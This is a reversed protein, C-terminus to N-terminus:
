SVTSHSLITPVFTVSAGTRNEFYVRGNAAASVTFKADTSTTGALTGTTVNLVSGGAILASQPTGTTRKVNLWAVGNGAASSGALALLLNINEAAGGGLQAVDISTAEDDALTLAAYGNVVEPAYDAKDWVNGRNVLQAASSSVFPQAGTTVASSNGVVTYTGAGNIRLAQKCDRFTNGQVTALGASQAWVAIALGSSAGGLFSNNGVSYDGTGQLYVAYKDVALSSAQAWYKFSNGQVTLSDLADGSVMAIHNGQSYQFVSGTVTVDGSSLSTQLLISTTDADSDFSHKTYFQCGDVIM